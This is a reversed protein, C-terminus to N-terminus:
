MSLKLMTCSAGGGTARIRYCTLHSAPNPIGEGNKDVPTCLKLPRLIQISSSGFQDAVTASM